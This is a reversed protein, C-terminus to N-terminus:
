SDETQGSLVHGSRRNRVENLAKIGANILEKKDLDEPAYTNIFKKIAAKRDDNFKFEIEKGEIHEKDHKISSTRILVKYAGANYAAKYIEDHKVNDELFIKIITNNLDDPLDSAGNVNNLEVFRPCFDPANYLKRVKSTTNFLTFGRRKGVSSFDAYYPQGLYLFNDIGNIRQRDHFDGAWIQLFPNDNSIVKRINFGSTAKAGSDYSCGIIPYHLLLIRKETISDSARNQMIKVIEYQQEASKGMYPVCYFEIDRIKIIKSSEVIHIRSLDLAGYAGISSHIGNYEHNGGLIIVDINSSIMKKLCEHFMKVVIPELITGDLTDGALVLIAKNKAALSIAEFLVKQRIFLFSNVGTNDINGFGTNSLHIDATGVIDYEDM